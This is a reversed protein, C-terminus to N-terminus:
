RTSTTSLEVPSTKAVVLIHDKMAVFDNILILEAKTAVGRHAAYKICQADKGQQLPARGLDRAWVSAFCIEM